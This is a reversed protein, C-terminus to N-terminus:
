QEECDFFQRALEETPQMSGEPIDETEIVYEVLGKYCNDEETEFSYDESEVEVGDIEKASCFCDKEKSCSTFAILGATAFTFVVKKM